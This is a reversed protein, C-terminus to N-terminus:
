IRFKVAEARLADPSPRAVVKRKMQSGAALTIGVGM